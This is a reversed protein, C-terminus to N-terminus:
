STFPGAPTFNSTYVATGVVLRVEDIYGISGQNDTWQAGGVVLSTQASINETSTFTGVSTGNIYVTGAGSSRVLAMHIWSGTSFAKSFSHSTGNCTVTVSTTTFSITTGSTSNGLCLVTSTGNGYGIQTPLHWCEMTFDGTGIAPYNSNNAYVRGTINCFLSATGYKYYTTSLSDGGGISQTFNFTTTGGYTGSDTLTTSGNTGDLHLLITSYIPISLIAYVADLDTKQQKLLGALTAMNSKNTDDASTYNTYDTTSFGSPNNQISNKYSQLSKFGAALTATQSVRSDVTTTLTSRASSLSM